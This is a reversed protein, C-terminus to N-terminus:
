IGKQTKQRNLGLGFHIPGFHSFSSITFVKQLVSKQWCHAASIIWGDNILSGGCYHYGLNLSVQHAQSHAECQYGGVIKDEMPAAAPSFLLVTTLFILYLLIHM